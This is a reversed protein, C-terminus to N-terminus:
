YLGVKPRMWPNWTCMTCPRFRSKNDYLERNFEFGREKHRPNKKTWRKQDPNRSTKDTNASGVETQMTKCKSFLKM